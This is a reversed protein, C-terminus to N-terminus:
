FMGNSLGSIVRLAPQSQSARVAIPRQTNAALTGPQAYRSSFNQLSASFASDLSSTSSGLADEKDPSNDLEDSISNNTRFRKMEQGFYLSEMNLECSM